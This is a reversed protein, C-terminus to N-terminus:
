LEAEQERGEQELYVRQGDQSARGANLKMKPSSISIRNPCKGKLVLTGATFAVKYCLAQSAMECLRAVTVMFPLCGPKHVLPSDMEGPTLVPAPLFFLAFILASLHM